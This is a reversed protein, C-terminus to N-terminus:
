LGLRGAYSLPVIWAAVAPSTGFRIPIPVGASMRAPVVVREPHAEDAQTYLAYLSLAPENAHLDPLRDKGVLYGVQEIQVVGKAAIIEQAIKAKDRRLQRISFKKM